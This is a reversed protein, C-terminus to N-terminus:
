GEAPCSTLERGGRSGSCLSTGALRGLVIGCKKTTTTLESHGLVTTEWSELSGKGM